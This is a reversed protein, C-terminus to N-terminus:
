WHWHDTASYCYKFNAYLKAGDNDKPLCNQLTDLWALEDIHNLSTAIIRIKGLDARSYDLKREDYIVGMKNLAYKTSRHTIAKDIFFKPIWREYYLDTKSSKNNVKEKSKVM